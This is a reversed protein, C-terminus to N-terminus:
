NASHSRAMSAAGLLQILEGATKAATVLRLAKRDLGLTEQAWDVRHQDAFDFFLGPAMCLHELNDSARLTGPELNYIRELELVLGVITPPPLRGMPDFEAHIEDDALRHRAKFIARRARPIEIRSVVLICVLGVAIVVAGWWASPQILGSEAMGIVFLAGGIPIGVISAVIWATCWLRKAKWEISTEM